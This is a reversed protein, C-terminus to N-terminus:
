ARQLKAVLEMTEAVLQTVERMATQAREMQAATEGAIRSIEETGRTIEEGAAAQEEGATAISRVKDATSEAIGVISGLSDGAQRVMETSRSVAGATDEMGRINAATGEQIAKVVDGVEKTAVMTKEALKRVEDAVVAFGRGAEGARAAEIAANLALLNTKDAIDTIVGMVRGIGQAQEGLANLSEKLGGTKHEVETIARIVDAVIRRGEEANQKASEASTSAAGANRAVEMTTANMEEMATATETTRRLQMDAGASAQRVQEVLGGAAEDIRNAIGALEGGAQRMGRSMAQEAEAKAEEAQAVAARAKETQELAEASKQEATLIMEKLRTVMTRLADALTGIEDGRRVTLTNDLNGEAVASAFTVGRNLAGVVNRVVLFVILAVALAVGLSIGASTKALTYVGSHIDDVDSRIVCFWKTLPDKEFFYLAQVGNFDTMFRGREETEGLFHRAAPSNNAEPSMILDPNHHALVNGGPSVIFAYGNQGLSIDKVYADSFEGLDMTILLVGAPTGKIMVPVALPLVSKGTTTSKIPEGIYDVQGKMAQQFYPRDKLSTTPPSDTSSAVVMGDANIVHILQYFPKKELMGKLTRKLRLAGAAADAEPNLMNSVMMTGALMQADSQAGKILVGILDTMDRVSGEADQFIARELATNALQYSTFSVLALGLITMGLIPVLLRNRLNWM